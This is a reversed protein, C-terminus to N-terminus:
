KTEGATGAHAAAEKLFSLLDAMSKKDILKEFGEPMLSKGSSHMEEIDVRLVTTTKNETGRLTVATSTEGAVIGTIVQGDSTLVVYELFRPDVEVNPALVNFLVSESGRSVMAALNPGVATGVGGMEHCTSCNKEFVQKGNSANGPSQLVERYDNFVQQRDAPAGQGRLKRALERVKASPYNELMAAHAPELATIRVGQKELHQALALAWPGRRLLVETARSREGPSFQAWRALLLEAVKPSNFQACANMVAEHIAASEQASLLEELRSQQDQFSDLTLDEIASVRHELKADPDALVKEANAVISKAATQRLTRLRVFQPPNSGELADAPLRSLAKLLAASSTREKGSSKELLSVLVDLDEGRRQRVIQGIIAGLTFDGTATAVWKEDGLVIELVAGAHDIM